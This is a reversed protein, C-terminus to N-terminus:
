HEAVYRKAAVHYQYLACMANKAELGFDDSGLVAGVYALPSATVTFTGGGATGAVTVERDLHQAQIGAVRVRWRKGSKAVTPEVPDGGSVLATVGEPRVNGKTTLLVDLATESELALAASAKTVASDGLHKAMGYGSLRERIQDHEYSHAYFTDMEAYQDDGDGISWGNQASLFPQVWHGYDAVARVLDVTTADYSGTDENFKKVYSEVSVDEKTLAADQGNLTYSLTATVPQAMEVSSLQVTFGRLGDANAFSEGYPVEVLRHNRGSVEFTVKSASWDVGIDDPLDLLVTFGIQGTLVLQQRVFRVEPSSAKLTYWEEGAGKQLTKGAPRKFKEGNGADDSFKGGKIRFPHDDYLSNNAYVVSAGATSSSIEGDNITVSTEYGRYDMVVGGAAGMVAGGNVTLAQGENLIGYGHESEVTGSELTVNGQAYIANGNSSTNLIRGTGADSNDVITLHNDAPVWLTCRGQLDSGESSRSLVHGNLDLTFTRNCQMRSALEVDRELTVTDGAQAADIAKRLSTYGVEGIRAECAAVEGTGMDQMYGDALFDPELALPASGDATLFTGGSIFQISPDCIVRGKFTGGTISANSIPELDIFYYSGEFEGGTISLSAVGAFDRLQITNMARFTGGSITINARGNVATRIAGGNESVFEGSVVTLSAPVAECEMYIAALGGTTVTPGDVMLSGGNGVTLVDKYSTSADLIGDGVLEVNGYIYLMSTSDEMSEGLTHGNMDITVNKKISVVRTLTDDSVFTITDGDQAASVAEEFTDYGTNGIMVAYPSKLTYWQEGDDRQLVMGAPRKFKEGNGADDSFKGGNIIFHDAYSDPLDDRDMDNLVSVGGGSSIEGGNIIVCVEPFQDQLYIGAVGGSVRGGNVILTQGYQEIGYGNESEM